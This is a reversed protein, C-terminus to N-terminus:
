FLAWALGLWLLGLGSLELCIRRIAANRTEFTHLMIPVMLGYLGLSMVLSLVEPLPHAQWLDEGYRALLRAMVYYAREIGIALCAIALAVGMRDLVHRDVRITSLGHLGRAAILILLMVMVTHSAVTLGNYGMDM